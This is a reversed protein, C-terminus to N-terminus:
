LHSTSISHVSQSVVVVIIIIILLLMNLSSELKLLQGVISNSVLKVHTTIKNKYLLYYIIIVCIENAPDM